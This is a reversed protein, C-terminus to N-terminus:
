YKIVSQKSHLYYDPIGTVKTKLFNAFTNKSKFTCYFRALREGRKAFFQQQFFYFWNEKLIVRLGMAIM